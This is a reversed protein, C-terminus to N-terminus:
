FAVVTSLRPTPHLNLNEGKGESNTRMRGDEVIKKTVTGLFFLWQSCGAELLSYAYSWSVLPPSM